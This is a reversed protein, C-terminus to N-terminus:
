LQVKGHIVAGSFIHIIQILVLKKKFLFLLSYYLIKHFDYRDTSTDSNTFDFYGFLAGVIIM